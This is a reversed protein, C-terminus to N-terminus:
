KGYMKEGALVELQIDNEPPPLPCVYEINYVCFPNYATNFDVVLNDQIPIDLYRGGGYTSVNTTLDRFPVFYTNQGPDLYEYATLSQETDQLIFQLKGAITVQQVTGNTTMLKLTDKRTAPILVAECVYSEDPPFYALGDFESRQDNPVPSDPSNTFFLDKQSRAAEMKLM